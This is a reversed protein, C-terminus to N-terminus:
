RMRTKHYITFAGYERSKCEASSGRIYFDCHNFLMYLMHLM